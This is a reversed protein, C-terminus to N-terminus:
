LLGQERLEDEVDPYHGAGADRIGQLRRRAGRKSQPGNVKNVIGGVALPMIAAVALAALSIAVVRRASRHMLEGLLLGAAAGLLAPTAMASTDTWDRGSEDCGYSM